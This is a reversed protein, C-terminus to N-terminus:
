RLFEVFDRIGDNLSIFKKFGINKILNKNDSFIGNQDGPTPDSQFYSSGPFLKKMIELLEKVKTKKGTGVNLTKNFIDNRVSVEWWIDVVDNIHIFDRFREISGKVEIKNKSLLQSLYISVMGQRMNNMDQGPGYVNFMRLSVYPLKTSYIKLYNEAAYKGVGYCSLPNCSHSEKIPIDEVNGYVSMSSAYVFKEINREVGYKILNLTSIVNKQLDKIPDDFSIEGSSQGALHLILDVNKPLNEIKNKDSLDMEIFNIKEIIKKSRSGMSFDDIGYVTFGNNLFKEAVKSGIFGGVGTILVNKM